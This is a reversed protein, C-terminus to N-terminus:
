VRATWTGGGDTSYQMRYYYKTDPTLGTIDVVKPQGASATTTSTQGTYVGSTTGYQYYLSIASDPVISISISNAEPRGLLESGTFSITAAANVSFTATVARNASMTVSCTSTGTCAGSWGSFAYGSNPAATVAVVDGQNYTHPGAAPNITGGASPSVATTLVYTPVATFNATVTQHRDMTVSCSGTGTCAGSWNSFTYGSNPTATIAVVDDQNYTHPGAAPNITGGGTPSVATTLTYTPVAVFNATVTKDADMTVSCSGSGTCAGSWGSFTYGSNPAATVGVVEGENYTYTGAAPNSREM